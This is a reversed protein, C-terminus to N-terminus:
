SEAPAAEHIAVTVAQALLRAICGYSFDNMHLGDDIIFADVPLGDREHWLRMIDFRRFLGVAYEDALRALLGLMPRLDPSQRVAPCYQPDLLVVDYGAKRMRNLGDRVLAETEALTRELVLANTGVQWLVLDPGAAAVDQDYRELMERADQGGIGRNLVSITDAPFRQRLEAELRSPYCRDPSSAGHGQTSSSGFAVM